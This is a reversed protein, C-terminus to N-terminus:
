GRRRAGTVGAGEELNQVGEGGYAEGGIRKEGRM